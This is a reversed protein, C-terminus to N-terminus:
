TNFDEIITWVKTMTLSLIDAYDLQKLLQACERTDCETRYCQDKVVSM